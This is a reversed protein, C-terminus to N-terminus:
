GGATVILHDYQTDQIHTHLNWKEAFQLAQQFMEETYPEFVFKEGLGFTSYDYEGRLAPPVNREWLRMYREPDLVLAEDYSKGSAPEALNHLDVQLEDIIGQNSTGNLQGSSVFFAHGVIANTPAVSRPALSLLAALGSGVLIALLLTILVFSLFANRRGKRGLPYSLVPPSRGDQGADGEASAHFDANSPAGPLGPWNTPSSSSSSMAPLSSTTQITEFASSRNDM